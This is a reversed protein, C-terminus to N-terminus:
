KSNEKKTQPENDTREICYLQPLWHQLNNYRRLM